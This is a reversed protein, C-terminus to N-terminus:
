GDARHTSQSKADRLFVMAAAFGAVLNALCVVILFAFRFM